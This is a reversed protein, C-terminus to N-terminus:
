WPLLKTIWDKIQSFNVTTILGILALGVVWKWKKSSRIFETDDELKKIKNNTKDVFESLNINTVETSKVIVDLRLNVVEFETNLQMVLMRSNLRANSAVRDIKNELIERELDEKTKENAMVYKLKNLSLKIESIQKKRKFLLNAKYFYSYVTLAFFASGLIQIKAFWLHGCINYIFSYFDAM